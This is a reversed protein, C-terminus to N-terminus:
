KRHLKEKIVDTIKKNVPVFIRSGKVTIWHGREGNPGTEVEGNRIQNTAIQLALNIEADAKLQCPTKAGAYHTHDEHQVLVRYSSSANRLQKSCQDGTGKCSDFIIAKNQGYAPSTVNANHAAIWQDMQPGSPTEHEHIPWVSPSNYLIQKDEFLKQVRRDTIKEYVKLMHLTDNLDYGVIDGTRYPEQVELAGEYTSGTIHILECKDKGECDWVTIQPKSIVTAASKQIGEWTSSWRNFNFTDDMFFRKIFFGSDGDYRSLIEPKVDSLGQLM